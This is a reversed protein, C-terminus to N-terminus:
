LPPFVLIGLHLHPLHWGPHWPSVALIGCSCWRSAALIGHRSCGFQMHTQAPFEVSGAPVVYMYQVPLVHVVSSLIIGAICLPAEQPEIGLWITVHTCIMSVNAAARPTPEQMNEHSKRLGLQLALTPLNHSGHRNGRNHRFPPLVRLTVKRRTIM